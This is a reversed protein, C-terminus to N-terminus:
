RLDLICFTGVLDCFEEFSLDVIKGGVLLLPIKKARVATTFLFFFYVLLDEQLYMNILLSQNSDEWSTRFKINSMGEKEKVQKSLLIASPSYDIGTLNTYGSKALEVLLVGNGTGIDLVSSDLPIKRKEMWRILRVMSEEGFWIEGTDGIDQFTQLEREYAADWHERTGLVSPSFPAEGRGPGPEGAVAM